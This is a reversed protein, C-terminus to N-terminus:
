GAPANTQHIVDDLFLFTHTVIPSVRSSQSFAAARIVATNSVVIANTFTEGNSLGPASGDTTYRITCDLPPESTVTLKFSKEAFGAQQSFILRQNGATRTASDSSAAWLCLAFFFWVVQTRWRRVM